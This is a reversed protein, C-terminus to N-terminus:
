RTTFLNGARVSRVSFPFTNSLAVMDTCYAQRGISSQQVSGTFKGESIASGSFTFPRDYLTVIVKKFEEAGEALHCVERLGTGDVAEANVVCHRGNFLANLLKLKIGTCNFSPIVHMQAKSIIDKLEQDSPDPVLCCNKYRSVIRFLKPSPNKGAILFPISLDNFVKELLWVVAKENEEM